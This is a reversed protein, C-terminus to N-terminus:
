KDFSNFACKWRAIEVPSIAYCVPNKYYPHKRLIGKKALNGLIKPLGWYDYGYRKKFKEQWDDMREWSPRRYRASYLLASEEASFWGDPVRRTGKKDALDPAAAILLEMVTQENKTLKM